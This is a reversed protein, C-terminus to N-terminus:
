SHLDRLGQAVDQALDDMRVVYTHIAFVVARTKPLRVFCQRESRAYIRSVPAPRREGELRPQHLTPDDYILSNARWLPQEPRIADFMRQVRQAINGDYSPVPNHIRTMPHGLKQALTWSAPFCLIAGTLIHEAEDQELLCLDEQVLRGLTLLPQDPDLPVEAGDPRRATTQGFGYGARRGLQDLIIEYLERAAPIARPQMAHVTQPTTAILRDREAMQGAFADDLTIWGDAQLPLVGPLRATRPDMWPAHPLHTQLIPAMGFILGDHADQGAFQWPVPQRISCNPPKAKCPCRCGDLRFASAVAKFPREM